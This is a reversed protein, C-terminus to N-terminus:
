HNLILNGYYFLANIRFREFSRFGRAKAIVSQLKGNTNEHMASSTKTSIAAAIGEIHNEITKLAKNVYHIAKNRSQEIWTQIQDAASKIEINIYNWLLKFNERIHWAQATKLNASNIADFRKKQEENRSDINKLVNYKQRILLDNERVEKKRTADIAETLKKFVHFKDHVITAQPAIQKIVNMYPRWMDINVIDLQPQEEEGTVVYFLTKLSKEDRGEHMDLIYEKDSDMLITAYEHGRAYAKEDISINKLGMVEGRKSLGDEVAEEMISRVIYPTTKLIMAVQSQVKVQQLLNIAAEKFLNTYSKGPNSFSPKYTKVKGEPTIYRPLRCVIYCKYEFWNLHQWEREPAYDYIDYSQGNVECRMEVFRLYIRIIKESTRVKEVKVIAFSTSIELMERLFDTFEM